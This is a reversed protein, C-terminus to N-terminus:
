DFVWGLGESIRRAASKLDEAWDTVHHPKMRDTLGWVSIAAIVEGQHNFVPAAIASTQLFEEAISVAMGDQRVDTLQAEFAVRDTITSPTHPEFPLRDLVDARRKEAMFAILVKGAATCHAAAHEGMQAAYQVPYPHITRLYLTRLDDLVALCVNHGCVECLWELESEALRQLDTSFWAQRAWMRLRNGLSYSKNRSDYEVVGESHLIALLRHASSQAFGTAAAIDSFRM